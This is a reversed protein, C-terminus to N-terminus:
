VTNLKFVYFTTPAPSYCRTKYLGVHKVNHFLLMNDYIICLLIYPLLMRM